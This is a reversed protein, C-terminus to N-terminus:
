VALVSSDEAFLSLGQWCVDGEVAFGKGMWGAAAAIIIIKMITNVPSLTPGNMTGRENCRFSHGREEWSSEVGM